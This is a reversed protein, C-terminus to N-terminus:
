AASRSATGGPATSRMKWSSCTSRRGASRFGARICRCVGSRALRPQDPERGRGPRSGPQRNGAAMRSQGGQESHWGLQARRPDRQRQGVRGAVPQPREGDGCSQERDPAAGRRSRPDGSTDLGHRHSRGADRRRDQRAPSRRCAVCRSAFSYRRNLDLRARETSSFASKKQAAEVAFSLLQVHESETITVVANFTSGPPAAAPAAPPGDATGGAAPVPTPKLSASAIRTQWGCGHIVIDRRGQDPRERLLPRPPRLSRRRKRAPRRHRCQDVHVERRKRRRRRRHGHLLM